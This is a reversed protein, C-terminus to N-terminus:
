EYEVTIWNIIHPDLFCSLIKRVHKDEPVEKIDFYRLCKVKFTQMGDLLIDGPLLIPLKSPSDHEIRAQPLNSNSPFM